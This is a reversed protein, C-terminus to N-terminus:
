LFMSGKINRIYEFFLKEIELLLEHKIARFLWRTFDGESEIELTNQFAQAFKKAEVENQNFEKPAKKEEKDIIPNIKEDLAKVLIKEFFNYIEENKENMFSALLYPSVIKKCCAIIMTSREIILRIGKNKYVPVIMYDMRSKKDIEEIIMNVDGYTVLVDKFCTIEKASEDTAKIMRMLNLEHLGEIIENNLEEQEKLEDRM